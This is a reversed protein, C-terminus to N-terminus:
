CVSPPYRFTTRASLAYVDWLFSATQLVEFVARVSLHVYMKYLEYVSFNDTLQKISPMSILDVIFTNRYVM